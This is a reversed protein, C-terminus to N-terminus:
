RYHARHRKKKRPYAPQPRVSPEVELRYRRRSEELARQYGPSNMVSPAAGRASVPTYTMLTMVTAVTPAAILRTNM